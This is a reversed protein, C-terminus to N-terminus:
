LFAVDVDEDIYVRVRIVRPWEIQWLSTIPFYITLLSPVRNWYMFSALRSSYDDNADFM